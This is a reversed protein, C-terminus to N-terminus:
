KSGSGPTSINVNIGAGRDGFLGGRLDCFALLGVLVLIAIIAVIGVSNGGSGEAM